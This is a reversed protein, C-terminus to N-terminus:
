AASIVQTQENFAIVGREVAGALYADSSILERMPDRQPHKMLRKTVEISLGKRKIEGDKDALIAVITEDTLDTLDEETIKGNPKSRSTPATKATKTGASLAPGSTPRKGSSEEPLSHVAAVILDTRDYTGKGTKAKRQGYKDTAKANVQQAFQCRTGIIAEYNVVDEPLREEPFGKMVLTDIFLGMGTNANLSPNGDGVPTITKGDESIEWDDASGAFLHTEVDAKSGDERVTLLAYLCLFDNENRRGKKGNFETTFIYDTITGDVGNLFGGGRKFTSPRAGSM